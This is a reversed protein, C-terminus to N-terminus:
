DVNVFKDVNEGDWAMQRNNKLVFIKRVLRYIKTFSM